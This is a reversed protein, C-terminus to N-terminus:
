PISVDIGRDAPSYSGIRSDEYTSDILNDIDGEQGDKSRAARLKKIARDELRDMLTGSQTIAYCMKHALSFALAELFAKSYKSVDSENSVYQIQVKTLNTLLIGNEINWRTQPDANIVKRVRVSDNPVQYAKSYEADGVFGSVAALEVRNMAFNWYHDELLEDRVIPYNIKCMRATKTNDDLSLIPEAGLLTLASNCIEVPTTAM